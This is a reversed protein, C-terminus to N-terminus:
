ESIQRIVEVSDLSRPKISCRFAISHAVLAHVFADDISDLKDLEDLVGDEPKAIRLTALICAFLLWITTDAFHRGACIRPHAIRTLSPAICM